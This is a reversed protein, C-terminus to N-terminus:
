PALPGRKKAASEAPQAACRSLIEEEDSGSAVKLLMLEGGKTDLRFGSATDIAVYRVGSASSDQVMAQMVGGIQMAAFRTADAATFYAVMLDDMAGDCAYSVTAVLAGKGEWVSQAQVAAPCLLLGCTLSRFAFSYQSM